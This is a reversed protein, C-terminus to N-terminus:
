PARVVVAGSPCDDEFERSIVEFESFTPGTYLIAERARKAVCFTQDPDEAVYAAMAPWDAAVGSADAIDAVTQPEVTWHMWNWGAMYLFLALHFGRLATVLRPRRPALREYVVALLAAWTLPLYLWYRLENCQPLLANLGLLIAVALALHKARRRDSMRATLLLCALAAVVGAGWFGGMFYFDWSDAMDIVYRPGAGDAPLGLEFLSRAFLEIQGPNELAQGHWARVHGMDVYPFLASLWPPKIPWIPNGYLWLNKVYPILAMLAHVLVIAFARGRRPARLRSPLVCSGMLLAFTVGAIPLLQMRAWCAVTLGVLCWQMLLGDHREAAFLMYLAGCVGIALFSNAFLDPYNSPMQLLVLPATWAILAVTSARVSLVQRCFGLFLAFAAFNVICTAQPNGTLRWLLGQLVYPLPPFGQLQLNPWVQMSFPLAVGGYHAAMPLHYWLGDWNSELRCASRGALLALALATVLISVRDVIAGAKNGDGQFRFPPM